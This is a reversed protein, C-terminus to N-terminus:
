YRGVPGARWSRNSTHRSSSARGTRLFPNIGGTNVMGEGQMDILLEEGGEKPVSRHYPLHWERDHQTVDKAYVNSWHSRYYANFVDPELAAAGEEGEGTPSM